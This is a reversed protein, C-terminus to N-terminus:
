IIYVLNKKIINKVSDRTQKPRPEMSLSLSPILGVNQGRATMGPEVNGFSSRMQLYCLWSLLLLLTLHSLAVTLVEPAPDEGRVHLPM